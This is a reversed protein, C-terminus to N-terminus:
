IKIIILPREYLVYRLNQGNKVGERGWTVSKAWGKLLCRLLLGSGGTGGQGNRVKHIAGLRGDNILGNAVDASSSYIFSSQPTKM